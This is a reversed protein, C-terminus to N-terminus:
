TTTNNVFTRMQEIEETLKKEFKESTKHIENKVDSKDTKLMNEIQTTADFHYKDVGDVKTFIEERLLSTDNSLQDKAKELKNKCQSISDNNTQISHKHENLDDRHKKIDEKNLNIRANHASLLQANTAKVSEYEDKFCELEYQIKQNMENMTDQINNDMASLKLSTEHVKVYRNEGLTVRDNLTSQDMVAFVMNRIQEMTFMRPEKFRPTKM